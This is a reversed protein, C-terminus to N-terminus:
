KIAFSNFEGAVVNQWNTAIGIQIPTQKTLNTGDGLMGYDNRGWAWLTGDTKIALTHEIGASVSQWNTNTGVQTPVNIDSTTGDGLQGLSNYGWSWLTGDTKIGARIAGGNSSVYKWNTGGAITQVPSSKSVITNDGLEGVTGGGWMWLSGTKAYQDIMAYDNVFISDLPGDPSNFM